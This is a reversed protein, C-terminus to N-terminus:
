RRELFNGLVFINRKRYWVPSEFLASAKLNELGAPFWPEALSPVAKCWPPPFIKLEACLAEATSALLAQTEIRLESVPPEAILVRDKSTRFADVFNFLWLKWSDKGERLIRESIVAISDPPNQFYREVHRRLGQAPYGLAVAIKDLSSLQTDHEGGELLQLTKYSLGALNALQRQSIHNQERLIKLSKM